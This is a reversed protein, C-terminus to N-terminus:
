HPFTPVLSEGVRYLITCSDDAHNGLAAAKNLIRLQIVGQSATFLIDCGLDKTAGDVKFQRGQRGAVVVNKFEVNGPKSEFESVPRGTSFVTVLYNPADWGCIEWGSQRVGAVGPEETAPDLGAARLAGEPIGTCPDFLTQAVTTSSGTTPSDSTTDECGVVGAALAGILLVLTIRRSM